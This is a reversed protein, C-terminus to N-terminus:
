LDAICECRAASGSPLLIFGAQCKGCRRIAERIREQRQAEEKGPCGCKEGKDHWTGARCKWQGNKRCTMDSMTPASFIGVIDATNVVQDDIHIFKSERLSILAQRAAAARDAELWIEVGNRMSVCVLGKTLETSM